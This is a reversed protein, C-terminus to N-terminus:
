PRVRHLTFTQTVSQCSAVLSTRASPAKPDLVWLEGHAGHKMDVVFGTALTAAFRGTEDRVTRAVEHAAL